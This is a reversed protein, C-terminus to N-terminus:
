RTVLGDGAAGVFGSHLDARGIRAGGARLDELIEGLVTVVEVAFPSGVLLHSGLHCVAGADRADPRHAGHLVNAHVHRCVGDEGSGVVADGAAKDDDRGVIGTHMGRLILLVVAMVREGGLEGHDLGGVRLLTQVEHLSCVLDGLLEVQRHKEAGGGADGVGLAKDAEALAGLLGDRGIRAVGALVDGRGGVGVQVMGLHLGRQRSQLFVAACRREVAHIEIAALDADNGGGDGIFVGLVGERRVGREELQAEGIRQGHIEDALKGGLDFLEIDNLLEVAEHFVLDLGGADVADALFQGSLEVLQIRLKQLLANEAFLRLADIHANRGDGTRRCQARAARM